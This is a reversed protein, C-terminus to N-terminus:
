KFGNAIAWHTLNGVRVVSLENVRHREPRAEAM